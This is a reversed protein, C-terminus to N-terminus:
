EKIAGIMIGTNFYKQIFPYLLCFPLATIVVVSYKLLEVTKEAQIVEDITGGGSLSATLKSTIQQVIVQLSQMQPDDIYIVFRMYENWWSLANFLFLVAITAKSLPIAFQLFYRFDSAGDIYASERLSDPLTQFSSRAVILYYANFLAPVLLVAPTNIWGIANHLLYTPIMGGSFYMSVVILINWFKRGVLDRRSLAYAAPLIGFLNIFSGVFLYILSNRYGVWIDSYERLKAYADFTIQKPLLLVDGVAIRAPDSISAIIVFWLPYLCALAIVILLVHIVINVAVDQKVRNKRRTKVKISM